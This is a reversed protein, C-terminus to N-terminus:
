DSSGKVILTTRKIYGKNVFMVGNGLPVKYNGFERRENELFLIFM